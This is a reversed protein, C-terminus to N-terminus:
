VPFPWWYPVGNSCLGNAVGPDYVYGVGVVAVVAAALIAVGVAAYVSWDRRVLSLTLAFLVGTVAVTGFLISPAAILFGLGDGVSSDVVCERRMESAVRAVMVLNLLGLTVCTLSGVVVKQAKSM